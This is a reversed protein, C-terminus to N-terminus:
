RGSLWEAEAKGLATVPPDGYITERGIRFWNNTARLQALIGLTLGFARLTTIQDAPLQVDGFGSRMDAHEYVIRTVDAPSLTVDRDELFWWTAAAYKEMLPEVLEPGGSIVGQEKSIEYLRQQDEEYVARLLDLQVEVERKGQRRFFGFDLFAVRGDDLFLSNGPHPDGNLLRHRFPGNVYFRFLIEGFRDRTAPPEEAIEAFRRGHVFESVMVREGSLETMVGPVTIFPHDRYERALARQNSAELEYDLEEVIRETIEQAVEKSALGPILRSAAKLVLHLNKLDSRVTDKIGPYQVKVAVERGDTLHARYVQGISAAAIPEEDFEEFLDGLKAGLDQEIVKRMDKFAVTPAMHQLQALKRQFEESTDEDALGVDIVSLTQGIKMAAGRMSGLVTVMRDATELVAKRNAAKADEDSRMTNAARAGLNRRAAGAALGGIRAARGIRSNGIGM